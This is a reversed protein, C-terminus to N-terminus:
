SEINFRLHSFVVRNNGSEYIVMNKSKFIYQDPLAAVVEDITKFGSDVSYGSPEKDDSNYPTTYIV